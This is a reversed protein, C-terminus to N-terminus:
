HSRIKTHTLTPKRTLFTYASNRRSRSTFKSLQSTLPLTTLLNNDNFKTIQQIKDEDLSIYKSVEDITNRLIKCTFINSIGVSRLTRIGSNNTLTSFLIKTDFILVSLM